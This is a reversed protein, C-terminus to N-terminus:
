DVFRKKTFVDALLAGDRARVLSCHLVVDEASRRLTRLRGTISEGIDLNRYYFVDRATTSTRLAWDPEDAARSANALRREITDSITPYSAFYLLNAGNFDYYPSPDYDGVLDPGDAGLAIREGDLDHDALGGHRMGQALKLLAPPESLAPARCPLDGAITAKRLDNRREAERSVFATLMELAFRGRPGLLVVDSLFFVGGFRAISVQTDFVDGELVASLPQDYRARIGVFTPYVRAGGEDLLDPPAIGLSACLAQWHADGGHRFLWNESLGNAAMQPMQISVSM